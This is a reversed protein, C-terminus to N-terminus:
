QSLRGELFNLRGNLDDQSIQLREIEIDHQKQKEKLVRIEVADASNMTPKAKKIFRLYIGIAPIVVAALIGIIIKLTIEM